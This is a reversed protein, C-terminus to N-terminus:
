KSDEDKKSFIKEVSEKVNDTGNKDLKNGIFLCAAVIAALLLTKFFGITLLLITLVIGAVVLITAWLHEKVFAKFKDM